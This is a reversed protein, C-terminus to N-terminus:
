SLAAATAPECRTSKCPLDNIWISSDDAREIVTGVGKDAPKITVAVDRVVQLLQLANPM